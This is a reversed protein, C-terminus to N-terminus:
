GVSRRFGAGVTEQGGDAARNVRRQLAERTEKGSQPAVIVGVIAGAAIGLVIGIIFRM